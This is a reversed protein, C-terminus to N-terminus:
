SQYKISLALMDTGYKRHLDINIKEFHGKSVAQVEWFRTLRTWFPGPIRLLPDLLIRYLSITAFIVLLSSVLVLRPHLVNPKDVVIDTATPM